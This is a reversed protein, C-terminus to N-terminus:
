IRVCILLAEPTCSIAKCQPCEAFCKLSSEHHDRQQDIHISVWEFVPLTLESSRCARRASGSRPSASRLRSGLDSYSADVFASGKFTKRLCFLFLFQRLLACDLYQSIKSTLPGKGGPNNDHPPDAPHQHARGMCARVM